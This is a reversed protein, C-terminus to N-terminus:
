GMRDVMTSCVWAGRYCSISLNVAGRAELYANELSIRNTPAGSKGARLTMTLAGHADYPGRLTMTLADHANYPGRLTMTLADHADYPGRLTMTLADHADYPCRLTM